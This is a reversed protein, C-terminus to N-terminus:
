LHTFISEGDTEYDIRSDRLEMQTGEDFIELEFQFTEGSFLIDTPYTFRYGTPALGGHGITTDGITGSGIPTGSSRSMLGKSVLLDATITEDFMKMDNCFMRLVFEGQASLLGGCIYNLFELTMRKDDKTYIKSLIRHSIEIGNDTYGENDLYIDDSNDSGAYVRGKFNTRCKFNKGIDICWRGVNEQLIVEHSFGNKYVTFKVETTVPDFSTFSDEQNEDIGAMFGQIPYDLNKKQDFPDDLVRVGDSDNAIAIVRKNKADLLYTFKQGQVLCRNNVGGFTGHIETVLLAESTVEFTSAFHLGKKLAIISGGNIDGIDVIDTPLFKVNAGNAVYDYGFQPSDPTAHASYYLAARNASVGGALTSGEILGLCSAKPAGAPASTQTVIDGIAMDATLGVCGTYNDSALTGSTVAIGRIYITGSSFKGGDGTRLSFTGAGSNVAAVTSVAIRTYVDTANSVHLDKEISKFDEVESATRTLGTDYWTLGDLSHKIKTSSKGFMVNYPEHTWLNHIRADTGFDSKLEFGLRTSMGGANSYRWNEVAVCQSPDLNEPGSTYDAGGGYNPAVFADRKPM